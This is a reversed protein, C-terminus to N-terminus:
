FQNHPHTPTHTRMCFSRFMSFRSNFCKEDVKFKLLKVKRPKAKAKKTRRKQIPRSEVAIDAENTYAMRCIADAFIQMLQARNEPKWENKCLLLLPKSRSFSRTTCDDCKCEVAAAAAAAEWKIIECKNIRKPMIIQSSLSTTVPVPWHLATSANTSESSTANRQRFVRCVAFQTLKARSVRTACLSQREAPQSAPQQQNQWLRHIKGSTAWRM